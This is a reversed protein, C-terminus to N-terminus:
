WKQLAGEAWDQADPLPHPHPLLGGPPVSTGGLLYFPWLNCKLSEGEPGLFLSVPPLCLHLHLSLPLSLGQKHTHTLSLAISGLGRSYCLSHKFSRTLPTISTLVCWPQMVFSFTVSSSIARLVKLFLWVVDFPKITSTPAYSMEPKLCLNMDSRLSYYDGSLYHHIWQKDIQRPYTLCGLNMMKQCLFAAKWRVVSTCLLSGGRVCVSHLFWGKFSLPLRTHKVNAIFTVTSLCLSLFM